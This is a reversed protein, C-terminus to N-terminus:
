ASDDVCTNGRQHYVFKEVYEKPQIGFEKKFCISFYKPDGFGVTYAIESIRLNPNEEMIRCAAKMRINRIFGSPNQGTLSVLKRYLSSKSVGLEEAMQSQGFYNDSLHNNVCSIANKLFDEDLSGFNLGQLEFVFQKKFSVANNKRLNLLNNIKAHLVSFAFPKTIYGDAGVDYIETRQKDSNLVTLVIIAIHSFSIDNRIAKCLGLGDMEPMMLDTVVLDIAEKELVDLAEKGNKAVYVRYDVSLLKKMLGLLEDEDEVLLLSYSEKPNDSPTDDNQEEIFALDKIVLEPKEQYDEIDAESFSARGFPFSIKFTSGNNLESEVQINGGMITVLDKTLALGIGNGTTKKITSLKGEYFRKFLNSKEEENMGCGNDSVLLQAYQIDALLRVEVHVFGGPATFKLANSVLNFLIKDLKDFDFYGDLSEVESVISLHIKKKQSLPHFTMVANHVFPILDGRSVHLKLNGAEAKQFELVQQILRKLRSVNNNMVGVYDICDTEKKTFSDLTASIITLPTLLEHTINTFFQMKAHNLEETKEKEWANQRLRNILDMRNKAFLVVGYVILTFVLFYVLYAWWTRWIPPLVHISTNITQNSWIGNANCGKVEFLYKGAPLNDYRASPNNGNASHWSEEFGKLRYSYTCLDSREYTLLSFFLQINKHKHPLTIKSTFSPTQESIIQRSSVDLSSYSQGDILFDSLIVPTEIYTTNERQPQFVTIGSTGAFYIKGDIQDSCGSKLFNNQLFHKNSYFRVSNKNNGKDAIQILGQNTGIWMNGYSDNEIDCIIDATIGYEKNYNVFFDKDPNYKFLGNGDTGIWLNGRSDEKICLITTNIFAEQDYLKYTISKPTTKDGKLCALGGNRTGLWLRGQNDEYLSHISLSNLNTTNIYVNDFHYARGNAYFVGLGERTGVWCNGEEDELLSNIQYSHIGRPHKMPNIVKVPKGETFSLIYGDTTAFWLENSQKKEMMAFVTWTGKIESFEPLDKYYQIQKGDVNCRTLGYSGTALWLHRNKDILLGQIFTVPVDHKEHTLQIHSFPSSNTDVYYVGGGLASLYIINNTISTISTVENFPVHQKSDTPKYNIFNSTNDQQKISLGLRTGVWLSNTAEHNGLCYIIDDNISNPDKKNHRFNTWQLSDMKKPNSLKYLGAGWTGIWINQNNDEVICHASNRENFIPYAIFKNKNKIYRYLGNCWSGIWVDGESDEYLAKIAVTSLVNRTEKNTFVTISDTEYDYLCLGSDTGLLVKGDKTVLICSIINNSISTLTNKRISGTRKNIIVLGRDTGIYVRHHNDDAFCLISNSTLMESNKYDSKYTRLTCGDYSYAGNKTAIWMLGDKDKYVQQAASSSLELFTSTSNFTLNRLDNNSAKSSM